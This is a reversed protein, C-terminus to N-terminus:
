VFPSVTFHFKIKGTNFSVYHIECETINRNKLNSTVLSSESSLIALVIISIISSMNFYPVIEQIDAKDMQMITVISINPIRRSFDIDWQHFTTRSGDRFCLFYVSSLFM